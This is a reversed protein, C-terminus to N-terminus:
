PRSHIKDNSLLKLLQREKNEMRIIDGKKKHDYGLLHLLGHILMYAWEEGEKAIYDPNLYIEGLYKGKADPGPFGKPAPFSMVNKKMFDNGVLIVGIRVDKLRLFRGLKLATRRIRPVLRKSKSDWSEVTIRM